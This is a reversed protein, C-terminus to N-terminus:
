RPRVGAEIFIVPKSDFPSRRHHHSEICFGVLERGEATTGYREIHGVDHFDADLDELYELIQSHSILNFVRFYRVIRVEDYTWFHNFDVTHAPKVEIPDSLSLHALTILVFVLAVKGM